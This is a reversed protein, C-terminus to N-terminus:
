TAYASRFIVQPLSIQRDPQGDTSSLAIVERTSSDIQHRPEGSAIALYTIVESLGQQAPYQALVQSLTCQPSHELLSEIRRRLPAPDVHFQQYLAHVLEAEADASGVAIPAARVLAESRPEWLSKEMAMQVEPPGELEIFVADSPSDDVVRLAQQKIEGILQRVRRSEAIARDDILRRVQEALRYNSQVIKQGADILVATIRRLLPSEAAVSQLMPLRYVQELLDSLRDKQSPSMLFEWFAYFSRGQDSDRLAQDSDLMYGVLEGKHAGPQIQREQLARAISRFNQEVEAFDRTIQRAFESALLFREKVETSSPQAVRGSARIADIQRQIAAQEAELQALRTEVDETSRAIIEELLGVMSRFRSETGVFEHRYLEEVWGIAREADVTLEVAPEENGRVSIRLIQHQEDSWQKLYAQATLRYPEERLDNLGELYSELRQTLTTLPISLQQDRKFVRHLFSIVLPANPSRLLLISPASRLDDQLQDHEM